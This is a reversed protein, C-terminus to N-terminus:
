RAFSMSPFIWVIFSRFFVLVVTLSHLSAFLSLFVTYFAIHFTPLPLLRKARFWLLKVGYVNSSFSFPFFASDQVGELGNLLHESALKYQEVIQKYYILHTAASVSFFSVFTHM